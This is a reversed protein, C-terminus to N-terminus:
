VSVPQGSRFPSGDRWRNPFSRLSENGMLACRKWEEETIAAKREAIRRVDDSVFEAIVPYFNVWQGLQRPGAALDPAIRQGRMYTNVTLLRRGFKLDHEEVLWAPFRLLAVCDLEDTYAAVLLPEISLVCAARSDGLQMHEDLMREFEARTAFRRALETPLGVALPELRHFREQSLRIRGPDTAATRDDHFKSM